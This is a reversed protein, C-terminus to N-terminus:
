AVAADAKPAEAPAHKRTRKAVTATADAKPAESVPTAKRTQTRSARAAEKEAKVKRAARAAAEKEAKMKLNDLTKGLRTVRQSARKRSDKALKIREETRTIRQKVTLTTEM